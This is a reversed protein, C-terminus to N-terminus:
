INGNYIGHIKLLDNETPQEVVYKDNEKVVTFTITYEIRSTTGKMQELRYDTFLSEDYVGEENNFKEKNENLYNFANSQATYLDYVTVKVTVYSVKDDYEEELIEYSLDKYQKRLVDRYKDRQEKSLNENEIIREMDVLVESSLNRYQKLYNEVAMRPNNGGCGTLLITVVLFILIKKM